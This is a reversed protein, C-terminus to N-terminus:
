LLFHKCIKTANIATMVMGENKIRTINYTLTVFTSPVVCLVQKTEGTICPILEGSSGIGFSFM